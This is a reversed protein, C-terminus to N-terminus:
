PIIEQLDTHYSKLLSYDNPGMYFQFNLNSQPQLTLSSSFDALSHSATDTTLQTTVRSSTVVKPEPILTTNFYHQKFSLWKLAENLTKTNQTKIGYHDYGEQELNYCVQTYLQQSQIDQETLLSASTWNLTVPQTKDAMLPQVQMDLLYGTAALTYKISVATNSYTVTRGDASVSETMPIDKSHLLSGSTSKFGIDLSNKPGDFLLLPKGDFRKFKKLVVKKPYGGHNTLTVSLADNELVLEHEPIVIANSDALKSTDKVAQNSHLASQPHQKAYAISDQLKQQKFKTDAHQNYFIYGILLLMLLGFGALTNKDM